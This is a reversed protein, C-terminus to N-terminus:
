FHFHWYISMKRPWGLHQRDKFSGTENILLHNKPRYITMNQEDLQKADKRANTEDYIGKQRDLLSFNSRRVTSM